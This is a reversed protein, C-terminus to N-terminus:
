FSELLKKLDIKDKYLYSRVKSPIKLKRCEEKFVKPMPFNIYPAIFIKKEGIEVAWLGGFVLSSEKKLELRQASSLLYGLIKLYKDILRVVSSELEYTLVYIEKEHFIEKVGKNLTLKDEKLYSFSRKIGESYEEMLENTFKNRFLNREYKSNSNSEDIFYIHKNHDLYKLLESKGYELLPRLLVYNKRKSYEELGILESTGAGKTLRMLFWELQDNLQHATLLNDYFHESMLKDFFDYRFDRANKEFNKEFNPAQKIHAKLNHEKALQLAYAEEEKSQKRLNYNVLAIDFKINHELLLFFLASSDVGASFALLNKKGKLYSLSENSLKLSHEL